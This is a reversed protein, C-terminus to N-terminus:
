PPSSDEVCEPVATDLLAAIVQGTSGAAVHFPSTGVGELVVHRNCLLPIYSIINCAPVESSAPLKSHFANLPPEGNLKSEATM